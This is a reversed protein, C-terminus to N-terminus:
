KAKLAISGFLASRSVTEACFLSGCGAFRLGNSDEINNQARIIPGASNRASEFSGVRVGIPGISFDDWKDLRAALSNVRM